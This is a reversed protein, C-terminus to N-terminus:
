APGPSGDPKRAPATRVSTLPIWGIACQGTAILRILEDFGFSSDIKIPDLITTVLLAVGRLREIATLVFHPPRTTWTHGNALTVQCEPNHGDTRKAVHLASGPVPKVPEDLSAQHLGFAIYRRVTAVKWAGDDDRDLTVAELGPNVAIIPLGPGAGPFIVFQPLMHHTTYTLARAATGEALFRPNEVWAPPRCTEHHLHAQLFRGDREIM